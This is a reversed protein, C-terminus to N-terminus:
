NTAGQEQMKAIDQESYGLEQLLEVSQAGIPQPAKNVQAPSNSLNFASVPVKLGNVQSDPDNLTQIANRAAVQPDALAEEM